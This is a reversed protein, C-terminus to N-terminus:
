DCPPPASGDAFLYKVLATLDAVNVDPAEVGSADVDAQVPCPPPEGGGFIYAVLYTLDAVNIPNGANVINDVNGRDVCCCADGIGDGDTDAQDPNYTNPCNDADACYGDADIDNQPDTPCADCADGLGDSDSDLQDNNDVFPCNDCADGLSDFDSNYQGANFTTPCNDDVDPVGDGDEDPLYPSEVYIYMRDGVISDVRVYIGTPGFFGDSSPTTSPGFEAQGPVENSFTAGKRTEYPYWWQASDTVHGEPNTTMDMAPNYGADMVSVAYHDSYPRGDNSFWTMGPNVQVHTILLGRALSDCGYTLTNPFYISFDSDLKDFKGTSGPNRYELLFYEGIDPRIPLLYLSSDSHTEIDYVVLDEFTGSLQIPNIWGLFMKSFGCLHSPVMSKISFIGYGAYGMLCWDVVPHDNDDNPTFYTTTDLKADYDYLDPMGINHTLEHCFVRITNLSDEGTFFPPWAPYHLPRLEPSTNWRSVHVGDFPGPGNGLPYVMAYSWIDNTNHSDEQGNGSHLFIVGDVVGDNNGDYQSFDVIPDLVPLLSEFDYGGAYHGANYWDLVTGVVALQDYSVEDFYDALSGGPYVNRSFLMSDITERSYTAPVNDWDVLIVLVKMTDGDYRYSSIAASDAASLNSGPTLGAAKLQERPADYVIARTIDGAATALATPLVTLLLLFLTLSLSKHM